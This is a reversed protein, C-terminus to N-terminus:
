NEIRVPTGVPVITFIEQVEANRMRICGNSLSRTVTSEDATGHIGYGAPPHPTGAKSQLRLWRSGLENDPAGPPSTRGNSATYAPNELKEAITFNGTPTRGLRGIGIDYVAFLEGASKLILVRPSKVVTISWDGKGLKLKQGIKLRSDDPRMNNLQRLAAITTHQKKAIKYLSDGSQVTYTSGGGGAFYADVNSRSLLATVKRWQASYPTLQKLLAHAARVTEPHKGSQQLKELDAYMSGFGGPEIADGAILPEDVAPDTPHPKGKVPERPATEVGTAPDVPPAPNETKKGNEEAPDIAPDVVTDPKVAPKEPPVPEVPSTVPLNEIPSTTQATSEPNGNQDPAVTATKGPMFCYILGGTVLAIGLFILGPRLWKAAGADKRLDHDFEFGPKM